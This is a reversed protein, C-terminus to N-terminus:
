DPFLLLITFICKQCYPWFYLLYPSSLLCLSSLLWSPVLNNKSFTGRQIDSALMCPICFCCLLYYWVLFIKKAMHAFLQCTPVEFYVHGGVGGWHVLRGFKMYIPWNTLPINYLFTYFNIRPWIPLKTIPLRRSFFPSKAMLCFIYYTPYKFCLIWTGSAM